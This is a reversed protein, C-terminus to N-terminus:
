SKPDSGHSILQKRINLRTTNFGHEVQSPLGLGWNKQLSPKPVKSSVRGSPVRFLVLLKAVLRTKPSFLNLLEEHLPILTIELSNRVTSLLKQKFLLKKQMCYHQHQKCFRVLMLFPRKRNQIRWGRSRRKFEFPPM